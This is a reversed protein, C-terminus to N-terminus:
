QDSELQKLIPDIAIELARLEQMAEYTYSGPSFEYANRAATRAKSIANRLFDARDISM